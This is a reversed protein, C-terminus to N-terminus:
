IFFLVSHITRYTLISKLPAIPNKRQPSKTSAFQSFFTSTHKNHISPSPLKVITALLCSKNMFLIEPVHCFNWQYSKRLNNFCYTVGEDEGDGGKTACDVTVGEQGFVTFSIKRAHPGKKGLPSSPHKRVM